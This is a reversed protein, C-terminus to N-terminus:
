KSTKLRDYSPRFTQWRRQYAAENARGKKTTAKKATNKARLFRRLLMEVDVGTGQLLYPLYTDLEIVTREPLWDALQRHIAEEVQIKEAHIRCVLSSIALSQLIKINM